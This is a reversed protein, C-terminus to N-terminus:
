RIERLGGGNEPVDNTNCALVWEIATITKM